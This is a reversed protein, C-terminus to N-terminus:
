PVEISGCLEIARWLRQRLEDESRIDPIRLTNLCTSATPLKKPNLLQIRFNKVEEGEILAAGLNKFGGTPPSRLGTSFKLVKQALNQDKRLIQFFLKPAISSTPVNVLETHVEWDDIDIPSEISTDCVYQPNLLVHAGDPFTNKFGEQLKRVVKDDKGFYKAIVAQYLDIARADPISPDQM